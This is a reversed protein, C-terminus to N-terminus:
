ENPDGCQSMCHHERGCSMFKGRVRCWDHMAEHILTGILEPYTMDCGGSIEITVGDTRGLLSPDDDFLVAKSIRKLAGFNDFTVQQPKCRYKRVAYNRFRKEALDVRDTFLKRAQWKAVSLQKHTVFKGKM